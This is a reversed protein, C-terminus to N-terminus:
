RPRPRITPITVQAFASLERPVGFRPLEISTSVNEASPPVICNRPTPLRAGDHHLM